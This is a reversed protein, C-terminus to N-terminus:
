ETSTRARVRTVVFSITAAAFMAIVPEIPIRMRISGYFVLAVSTHILVLGYLHVNRRWNKRTLVLGIVFLPIMLVAYVFGVDLSSALRGLASERSFWWGSKIGSIGVDSRFRWFRAFKRWMLIPVSRKHERLFTRGLVRAAKDKEVEPMSRLEEHGPLMHLPAVGGHYQPYELVAENNGQYFTMGGHSTFFIWKGFVSQNRAAWPILTLVLVLVLAGGRAARKAVSGSGILLGFAAIWIGVGLATPRALSGMGFLIGALLIRRWSQMMTSPFPIVLLAALLIIVYLNETFMYGSIFILFPNVAVLLAAIWATQRDFYKLSVLFVLWVIVGGLLVQLLRGWVPNAGFVRYVGSLVVPYLPPRRATVQDNALRYGDGEALNAALHHYDREDGMPARDFGIVFGCFVLRPVLTLLILM